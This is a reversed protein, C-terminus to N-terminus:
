VDAVISRDLPGMSARKASVASASRAALPVRNVQFERPDWEACDFRTIVAQSSERAFDLKAIPPGPASLRGEPKLTCSVIDDPTHQHRREGIIQIPKNILVTESLRVQQECRAVNDGRCALKRRQQNTTAPESGLTTRQEGFFVNLSDRATAHQETGRRTSMLNREQLSSCQFPEVGGFAIPENLRITTTTVGEDVDRGNLPSSVVAEVLTLPHM